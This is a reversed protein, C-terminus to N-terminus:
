VPKFVKPNKCKIHRINLLDSIKKTKNTKQKKKCKAYSSTKLSFCFAHHENTLEKEYWLWYFTVLCVLRHM